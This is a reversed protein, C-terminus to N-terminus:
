QLGRELEEDTLCFAYSRAAVGLQATATVDVVM